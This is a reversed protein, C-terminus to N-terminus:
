LPLLAAREPQKEPPLSEWKPGGVAGLLIAITFTPTM